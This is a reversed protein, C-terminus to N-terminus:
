STARWQRGREFELVKELTTFPASQFLAVLKRPVSARFTQQHWRRALPVAASMKKFEDPDFEYPHCYLVFPRGAKNIRRLAASLFSVPLLRLYGGGGVPLRFRGDGLVSVPLEEIVASEPSQPNIISYGPDYHFGYRLTRMPFISSDYSLGLEGMIDFAWWENRTISFCPARFGTIQKGIIDELIKISRELDERFGKPGLDWTLRHSYGHTQIEHGGQQIARVVEPRQDAVLGQIFFTGRVDNEDLIELCSMTNVYCRDSVEETKFYAQHWDEVDCSFVNPILSETLPLNRIPM